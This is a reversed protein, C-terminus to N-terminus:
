STLLSLKLFSVMEVSNHHLFYTACGTQRMSGNVVFTVNEYSDSPNMRLMQGNGNLQHASWYLVEM